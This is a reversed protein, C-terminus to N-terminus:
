IDGTHYLAALVTLTQSLTPSLTTRHYQLLGHPGINIVRGFLLTKDFNTVHLRALLWGWLRVQTLSYGSRIVLRSSTSSSSIPSSATNYKGVKLSSVNFTNTPISDLSSPTWLDELGM